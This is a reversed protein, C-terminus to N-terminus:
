CSFFFVREAYRYMFPFPSSVKHVCIGTDKVDGLAQMFIFSQTASLNCGVLGQLGRLRGFCPPLGM